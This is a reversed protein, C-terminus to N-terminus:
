ANSHINKDIVSQICLRVGLGLSNHKGQLENLIAEYDYKKDKAIKEIFREYRKEDNMDKFIVDTLVSVDEGFCEIGIKAISLVDDTREMTYVNDSMLERVVLPSHTAVIAYSEFMELVEYIARMLMTVGHPHLHQEPEDFLVLSDYRINAIIATLSYVYISEGSSMNRCFDDVNQEILKENDDYFADLIYDPVVKGMVRRWKNWIKDNTNERKEIVSLNAKFNKIQEDRSYLTNKDKLLGCYLYDLTYDSQMLPFCDFPSYSMVMIKSFIPARPQFNSKDNGIFSEIINNFLTSKGVGNEGILGIIRRYLSCNYKFDFLINRAHSNNTDYKPQYHYEFSYANKTETGAAYFKGERLARESSNTRLLSSRYIDNNEFKGYISPYVATDRLEGLYRKANDGFLTRMKRYYSIDYGLSCFEHSLCFFREPLVDVTNKAGEKMIKLLGIHTLTIGDKYYLQFWTSYGFDNWEYNYTLVFCVHDKPLIINKEIFNTYKTITSKCRVFPINEDIEVPINGEIEDLTWTKGYKRAVLGIDSLVSNLETVCEVYDGVGDLNLLGKILNLLKKDDDLLHLKSIFLKDQTWDDNDFYHKDIEDGFHVFRKDETAPLNYIDWISSLLNKMGNVDMSRDDAQKVWAYLRTRIAIDM